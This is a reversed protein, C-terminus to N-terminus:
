KKTKRTKPKTETELNIMGNYLETLAKREALSQAIQEHIDLKPEEPTLYSDLLKQARKIKRNTAIAFVTTLLVLVLLVTVIVM